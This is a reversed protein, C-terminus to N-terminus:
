VFPLPLFIAKWFAQSALSKQLQLNQAVLEAELGEIRVQRSTEQGLRRRQQPNLTNYMEYLNMRYWDSEIEVDYWDWVECKKGMPKSRNPCVVFRRGPNTSTWSTLVRLPLGCECTQEHLYSSM